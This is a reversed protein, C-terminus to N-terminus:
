ADKVGYRVEATGNSGRPGLVTKERRCRELPERPALADYEVVYLRSVRLWRIM